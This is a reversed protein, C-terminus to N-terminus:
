HQIVTETIQLLMAAARNLIRMLRITILHIRIVPIKSDSNIADGGFGKNDKNDSLDSEDKNQYSSLGSSSVDKDDVEKGCASVLGMVFVICMFFPFIKKIQKM